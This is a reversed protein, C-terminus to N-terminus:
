LTVEEEFACQNLIDSNKLSRRSTLAIMSYKQIETQLRPQGMFSSSIKRAKHSDGVDNAWLSGKPNKWVKELKTMELNAGLLTRSLLSIIRKLLNASAAGFSSAGPFCGAGLSENLRDLLFMQFTEKNEALNGLSVFIFVSCAPFRQQGDPSVKTTPTARSPFHPYVQFCKPLM